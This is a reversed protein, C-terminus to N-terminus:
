RTVYIAKGGYFYDKRRTLAGQASIATGVGGTVSCGVIQGTSGNIAFGIEGVPSAGGAINYFEYTLRFENTNASSRIKLVTKDGAGGQTGKTGCQLPNSIRSMEGTYFVAPAGQWLSNGSTYHITNPSATDFTYSQNPLALATRNTQIRWGRSGGPLTEQYISTAVLSMDARSFHAVYSFNNAHRQLDALNHASVSIYLPYVATTDFTANPGQQTDAVGESTVTAVAPDFKGSVLFRQETGTGANFMNTLVTRPNFSATSM